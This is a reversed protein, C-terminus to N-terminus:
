AARLIDWKWRSSKLADEARAVRLQLEPGPLQGVVGAVAAALGQRGAGPGGQQAAAELAQQAPWSLALALTPPPHQLVDQAAAQQAAVLAALRQQLVRADTEHGLLVLAEALQGAQLAPFSPFLSLRGRRCHAVLPFSPFHVSGPDATLWVSLPVM